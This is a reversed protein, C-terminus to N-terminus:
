TPGGPLQVQQIEAELRVALEGENEEWSLARLFPTLILRVGKPDVYVLSYTIKAVDIM